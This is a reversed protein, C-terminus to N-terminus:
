KIFDNTSDPKPSFPRFHYIENETDQQTGNSRYSKTIHFTTDNLIVGERIYARYPRESPYWREFKIINNEIVFVGWGIKNKKYNSSYKTVIEELENISSYGGGLDLIIGNNYFAYARFLKDGDIATYMWYYYGDIRLQNGTYPILPLSLIDDEKFSFCQTFLMILLMSLILSKIKSIKAKM